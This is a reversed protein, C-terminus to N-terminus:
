AAGRERALLDLLLLDLATKRNINKEIRSAMEDIEEIRGIIEDVEMRSAAKRIQAIRDINTFLDDRETVKAMLVDRFWSLYIALIRSIEQILLGKATAAVEDSDAEPDASRVSATSEKRYERFHDDLRAAEEFASLVDGPSSVGDLLRKRWKMESPECYALATSISGEALHSIVTAHSSDIGRETRLFEEVSERSIPMFNIRQCRSLVTPLLGSTDECTLIFITGPPPEELSKLLSNAAPTGLRDAGVIVAVRCAGTLPKLSIERQLERVRGIAISRSAKQPRLVYVDPHNGREILGCQRCSDCPDVGGAECNIAKAMNMAMAFKGTDAPGVFLYAHALRGSGTMNRILRKAVEQERIESYSM